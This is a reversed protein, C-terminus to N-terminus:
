SSTIPRPLMDRTYLPEAPLHPSLLCKLHCSLLSGLSLFYCGKYLSVAIVFLELGSYLVSISDYSEFAAPYFQDLCLQRSFNVMKMDQLCELM